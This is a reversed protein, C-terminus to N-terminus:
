KLFFPLIGLVIQIFPLVIGQILMRSRRKLETTIAKEDGVNLKIFSLPKQLMLKRVKYSVYDGFQFGLFLFVSTVLLFRYLILSDNNQIFTPAIIFFSAAFLFLLIYKVFVSVPKIYKIRKLKKNDSVNKIWGDIIHQYHNAIIYDVYNIDTRIPCYGLLPTLSFPFLRQMESIEQEVIVGSLLSVTITYNQPSKVKPLKILLDYKLQVKKVPNNNSSDYSEFKEFSSFVQKTDNQHFITICCNNGVIEFAESGQQIKYNLQRINNLDLKCPSDSESTLKETKGTISHYVAQVLQWSAAEKREEGQENQIIYEFSNNNSPDHIESSM